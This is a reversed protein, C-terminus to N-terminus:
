AMIPFIHWTPPPKPHFPFILLSELLKNAILFTCIVNQPSSFAHPIPYFCTQHLSLLCISSNHKQRYNEEWFESNAKMMAKLVDYKPTRGRIRLTVHPCYLVHQRHFLAHCSFRAVEPTWCVGLTPHIHPESYGCKSKIGESSTGPLLMSGCAWKM